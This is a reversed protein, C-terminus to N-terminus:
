DDPEEGPGAVFYEIFVVGTGGATSSGVTYTCTVVRDVPLKTYVSTGVATGAPAYGVSAVPLSFANVLATASVGSLGISVTGPGTVAATQQLINIGTVVADKPLVCKAIGNDTRNVVFSKVLRSRAKPYSLSIQSLPYSM